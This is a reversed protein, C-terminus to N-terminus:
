RLLSMEVKSILKFLSFPTRKKEIERLEALIDLPSLVLSEIEDSPKKVRM